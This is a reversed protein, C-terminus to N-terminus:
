PLAPLVTVDTYDMSTADEAGAVGVTSRCSLGEEKGKERRRSEEGGM